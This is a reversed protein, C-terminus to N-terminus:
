ACKEKVWGAESLFTTKRERLRQTKGKEEQEPCEALGGGRKKQTKRDKQCVMSSEEKKGGCRGKEGGQIIGVEEHLSTRVNAQTQKQLVEVLSNGRVPSREGKRERHIKGRRKKTEGGPIKELCTSPVGEGRTFKKGNSPKFETTEEEERKKKL